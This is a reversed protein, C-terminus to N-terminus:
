WFLAEAPRWFLLFAFLSFLSFGAARAADAPAAARRPRRCRLGDHNDFRPTPGPSADDDAIGETKPPSHRTKQKKKHPPFSTLPRFLPSLPRPYSSSPPFCLPKKTELSPPEGRQQGAISLSLSATKRERAGDLENKKSGFGVGAGDFCCARRGWRCSRVFTPRSLPFSVLANTALMTMSAAAAVVRRPPARRRGGAIAAQASPHAAAAATTGTAARTGSSLLM